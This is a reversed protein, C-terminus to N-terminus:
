KMDKNNAYKPNVWRYCTNEKEKKCLKWNARKEIHKKVKKNLMMNTSKNVPCLILEGFISIDSSKNSKKINLPPKHWMHEGVRIIKMNKEKHTYIASDLAAGYPAASQIAM